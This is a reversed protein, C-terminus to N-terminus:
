LREIQEPHTVDIIPRESSRVWGRVRLREGKLSAAAIREPRFLRLAEPSLRLSFATRWDAGFNVFLQGEVTAADVVVGKSSRSAAPM